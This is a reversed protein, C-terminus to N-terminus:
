EGPMNDLEELTVSTAQVLEGTVPSHLPALRVGQHRVHGNYVLAPVNQQTVRSSRELASLREAVTGLSTELTRRLAGLEDVIRDLRAADRSAQINPCLQVERALIHLADAARAFNPQELASEM